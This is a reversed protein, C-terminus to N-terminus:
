RLNPLVAESFEREKNTSDWVSIHKEYIGFDCLKTFIRYYTDCFNIMKPHLQSWGWFDITHFFGIILGYLDDNGIIMHKEARSDTCGQGYLFIDLQYGLCIITHLQKVQQLVHLRIHDQQIDLHRNHIANCRKRLNSFEIGLDFNDDQGHMIIM